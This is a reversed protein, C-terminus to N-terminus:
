CNDPRVTNKADRRRTGEECEPITFYPYPFTMKSNEDPVQLSLFMGKGNWGSRAVKYGKRMAEIAHGFTMAGILRNAREFQFKPYWSMYDDPYKVVYGEDLLNEGKPLNDFHNLKYYDERIMPEAEVIKVGIYKKM